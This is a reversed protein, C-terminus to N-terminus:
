LRLHAGGALVLAALAGAAVALRRALRMAVERGMPSVPSGSQAM